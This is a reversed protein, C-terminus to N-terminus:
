MYMCLTALALKGLNTSANKKGLSNEATCTYIEASKQVKSINLFSNDCMNEHPNCPTWTITPPPYGKVQCHLSAAQGRYVDHTDTLNIRPAVSCSFCSFNNCHVATSQMSRAQMFYTNWKMYFFNCGTRPKCSIFNHNMMLKYSIVMPRFLQQAKFKRKTQNKNEKTELRLANRGAM